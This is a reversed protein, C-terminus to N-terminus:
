EAPAAATTSPSLSQYDKVAKDLNDLAKGYDEFSGDRASELGRLADNIANIADGESIAAPASAPQQPDANNAQDASSEEDTSGTTGDVVDIDQASKPDIGVQSLAESITPAYGIAGNYSM